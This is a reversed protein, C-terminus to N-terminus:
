SRQPCTMCQTRLSPSASRRTSLRGQIVGNQKKSIRIKNSEKNILNGQPPRPEWRINVIYRTVENDPTLVSESSTKSETSAEGPRMRINRGAECRGRTYAGTRHALRRACACYALELSNQSTRLHQGNLNRDEPNHCWTTKYVSESTESSGVTV